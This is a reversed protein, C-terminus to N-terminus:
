IMIAIAYNQSLDLIYKLFTGTIVITCETKDYKLM